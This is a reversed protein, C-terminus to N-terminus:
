DAYLIIDHNSKSLEMIRTAIENRKKFVDPLSHIFGREQSILIDVIEGKLKAQAPVNRWFGISDIELRAKDFIETTAGVLLSIADEALTEHEGYLEKKLIRFFPMQKKKHLGYTPENATNIIRKRLEELRRYVEDWNDQLDRLIEMLTKAFSAYLEPDENINIEIFHRIAHEIEAAKTRTRQKLQVHDFFKEDMISIPEIKQEIGKSTLYEDTIGRLKEPIGRMSLRKDRLHQAALVKIETFRFMDNVYTLAEKRPFVNNIASIFRKYADLFKYRVDEDYFADYFMDSDSIDTIGQEQFVKWVEKHATELEQFLETSDQICSIIEEKEKEFYIDLATKLHHGIGVYDIIFGKKKDEDYVRNVRAIAQLLNHQMIIKDLYMVQEIPADFGTLLMDCVILIGVNGVIGDKSEGFPVKFSDIKEKNKHSESHAKIHPLDNHGSSIVVEARM